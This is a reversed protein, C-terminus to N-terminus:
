YIRWGSLTMLFYNKPERLFLFSSFSNKEVSRLADLFGKDIIPFNWVSIGQDLYACLIRFLLPQVKNTLDIQYYKKWLARLCGIRASNKTDYEKVLLKNLWDETADEGKREKIVRRVIENKIRGAKYLNRYEQLELTVHYGFIASANFIGDYFKYHQFAHLSNHHIFDKLPTQSPLYHRLKDVLHKEDFQVSVM